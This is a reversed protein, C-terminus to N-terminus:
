SVRRAFHRQLILNAMPVFAEGATKRLHTPRWLGEALAAPGGPARRPPRRLTAALVAM